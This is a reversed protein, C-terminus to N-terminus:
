IKGNVKKEYCDFCLLALNEFKTNKENEDLFIMHGISLIRNIPFIEDYENLYVVRDWVLDHEIFGNGQFAGCHVCKNGTTMRQMTKSYLKQIHPYEQELIIDIKPHSGIVCNDMVGDIVYSVVTTQKKCKWCLQKWKRLPVSYELDYLNSNCEICKYDQKIRLKPKIDRLRYDDNLLELNFIRLNKIEEQQCYSCMDFKPDHYHVKCNKCLVKGHEIANHCGKCLVIINDMSLYEQLLEQVKSEYEKKLKDYFNIVIKSKFNREIRRTAMYDLQFKTKNYKKTPRLVNKNFEKGCNGCRYKPKLTKRTSINSSDCVPCANVKEKNARETIQVRISSIENEVSVKSNAKEWENEWKEANNILYRFVTEVIDNWLQIYFSSTVINKHHISLIGELGKGCWQCKNDVRKLLKERKEKWLATRRIKQHPYKGKGYFFPLCDNCLPYKKSKRPKDCRVCKDKSIPSTIQGNLDIQKTMKM